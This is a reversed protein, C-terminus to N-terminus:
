KSIAKCCAVLVTLVDLQGELRSPKLPVTEPAGSQGKEKKNHSLLYILTGWGKANKAFPHSTAFYAAYTNTAGNRM